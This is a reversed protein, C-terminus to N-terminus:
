KQRKIFNLIKSWKKLSFPIFGNRPVKDFVIRSVPPIECSFKKFKILERKEYNSLGFRKDEEFYSLFGGGAIEFKTQFIYNALQGMHSAFYNYIVLIDHTLM